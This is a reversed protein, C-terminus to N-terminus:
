GRRGPLDLAQVDAYFRQELKAAGAANLHDVNYYLEYTKTFDSDRSYDFCPINYEEQLAGTLRSFEEFFDEPFANSYEELFPPILLVANWGKERCLDLMEHYADWMVPNPDPYTPTIYSWHLPQTNELQEQVQEPSLTQDAAGSAHDEWTPKLAPATLFASALNPPDLTLLPFLKRRWYLERDVDVINGPSLLRYYRTQKNEFRYKSETWYPSPYSVTLVVLAGPRVHDQYERLMAADYQPTQANLAFNFLTYGEPPNRLGFMAHSSGFVAIDIADPMDLFRETFDGRLINEYANTQYYAANGLCLLSLVILFLLICKALLKKM